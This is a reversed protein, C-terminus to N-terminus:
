CSFVCHGLDSALYGNNEVYRCLREYCAESVGYVSCASHLDKLYRSEYIDACTTGVSCCRDLSFPKVAQQFLNFFFVVVHISFFSVSDPSM